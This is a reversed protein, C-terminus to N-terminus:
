KQINKLIFKNSINIWWKDPELFSLFIIGTMQYYFSIDMIIFIGWHMMLALLVWLKAIRKSLLILPALLEALLSTFGMAFFIWVHAYLWEFIVHTEKGLVNKRLTDVGVQSRMAEGTFWEWALEGSVKAIGSLFYIIVTVICLLKVPWGYQWHMTQLNSQQRKKTQLADVSLADGSSAFGIIFIHIVLVNFNHYIM